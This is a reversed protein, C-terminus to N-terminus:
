SGNYVKRAAPRPGPKGREAYQRRRAQQLGLSDTRAPVRHSVAFVPRGSKRRTEIARAVVLICLVLVGYTELILALMGPGESLGIVAPIGIIGGLVLWKEFPLAQDSHGWKDILRIALWGAFLGIAAGALADSPYHALSTVRLVGIGACSGLLLLCLPWGAVPLVATAAGFAGATDGSPFSVRHKIAREPLGAAQAKLLDHPRPRGTALKLPNVIAAVIILALLAALVDHRRRSILFWALLLWVQLWAKGLRTFAIVWFSGHWSRPQSSLFSVAGEDLVLYSVVSTVALVLVAGLVVMDMPRAILRSALTRNPVMSGVVIV